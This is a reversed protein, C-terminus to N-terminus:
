AGDDDVEEFDEEHVVPVWPGRDDTNPDFDYRSDRFEGRDRKGEYPCKAVFCDLWRYLAKVPQHHRFRGNTMYGGTHKAHAIVQEATVGMDEAETLVDRLVSPYISPVSWDDPSAYAEAIQLVEEVTFPAREPEAHILASDLVERSEEQEIDTMTM